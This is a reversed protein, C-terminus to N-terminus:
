GSCNKQLIRNEKLHNLTASVRKNNNNNNNTTTTNVYMDITPKRQLQPAILPFFLGAVTFIINIFKV